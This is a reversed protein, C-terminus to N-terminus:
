LSKWGGQGSVEAKDNLIYFPQIEQSRKRKFAVPIHAVHGELTQIFYCSLNKSTLSILRLSPEVRGKEM